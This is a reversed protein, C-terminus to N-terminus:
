IRYLRDRQRRSEGFSAVLGAGVPDIVQVFVVPITRTAQQLALVSPSATALIVDPALAVLEEAYKRYLDSPRNPDFGSTAPDKSLKHRWHV